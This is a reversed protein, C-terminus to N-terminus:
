KKGLQLAYDCQNVKGPEIKARLETRDNYRVPLYSAIQDVMNKQGAPARDDGMGDWVKKGTPRVARIQVEYEGPLLGQEAALEYEGQVIKAGATQGSHRDVPIFTISGEPLPAGDITVKGLVAARPSGGCGIVMWGLCSGLLVAGLALRRKGRPTSM